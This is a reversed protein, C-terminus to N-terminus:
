SLNCLPVQKHYCDSTIELLVSQYIVCDKISNVVACNFKDARGTGVEFLIHLHDTEHKFQSISKRHITYFIFKQHKLGMYRDTLIKSSFYLIKFYKKKDALM